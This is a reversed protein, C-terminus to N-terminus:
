LKGGRSRHAVLTMSTCHPLSRDRPTASEVSLVTQRDGQSTLATRPTLVSQISREEDTLLTDM